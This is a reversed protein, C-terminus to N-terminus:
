IENIVDFGKFSGTLGLGVINGVVMNKEKLKKATENLTAGSGVADDILLINNYKKNDDIFITDKANEIRDELNSLSKQAVIIAGMTKVINIKPLGIDMYREMEKMFQIERKLTPPIFGIADIKEKKILKCIRPYVESFIMKMLNRNQGQKAYLLLTGLATKGFREISYFDLYYLKDLYIEKNFTQTLKSMGDIFGDKKFKNYKDITKIYDRISGAIDLNRERCWYSFAEIGRKMEGKPTIILFNEYLINLDKSNFSEIEDNSKLPLEKIFYVVLPPTGRKDIIGESLLNRLQKFIARPSLGFERILEDPRVTNRIKIYEVIKDSTKNM